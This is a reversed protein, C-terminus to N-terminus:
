RPPAGDAPTCFDCVTVGPDATLAWFVRVLLQARNQVHMKVYVHEIHTHVTRISIRLASAVEKESEGRFLARVIELERRSLCLRTAARVWEASWLTSTDPTEGRRRCQGATQAMRLACARAGSNRRTTATSRGSQEHRVSHQPPESDAHTISVATDGFLTRIFANEDVGVSRLGISLLVGKAALAEVYAAPSRLGALQEEAHRRFQAATRLPSDLLPQIRDAFDVTWFCSPTANSVM